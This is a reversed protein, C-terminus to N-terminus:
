PSSGSAAALVGEGLVEDAQSVASPDAKRPVPGVSEGASPELVDKPRGAQIAQITQTSVQNRRLLWHDGVGSASRM